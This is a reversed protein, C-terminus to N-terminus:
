GDCPPLKTKEKIPPRYSDEGNLDPSLLDSDDDHAEKAGKLGWAPGEPYFIVSCSMLSYTGLRM